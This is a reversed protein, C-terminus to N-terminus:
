RISRFRAQAERSSRFLRQHGHDRKDPQECLRFGLREDGSSRHGRQGGGEGDLFEADLCEAADPGDALHDPLGSIGISRGHLQALLRSGDGPIACGGLPIPFDRSQRVRWRRGALSARSGRAYRVCPVADGPLLRLFGPRHLYRLLRQHRPHCRYSRVRLREGRWRRRGARHGRQGGRSRALLEAHFRRASAPRCAVAVPLRPLGEARRDREFLLGPNYCSHRLASQPIAFSRTSGGALPNGRTDAVRCPTVPVYRLSTAPAGTTFSWTESVTTGATNRAVVQWYYTAGSHLVGPAWSTGTTNAVFVPSSSGFYVDYSTAGSSANWALMPAVVVGGAGKAPSALVPAALSAQIVAALDMTSGVLSGGGSVLVENTVQSPADAAVNTTVTIPPYSAGANLVDNRTCTNGWCNWGAGSMSALTLGVSVSETVTVTGSTPGASANNSVVVSFPAETQGSTLSAPHSSAVNLWAHSGTPILVRITEDEAVYVNGAADVVVAEPYALSASTATGGDGPFRSGGGAVTSITGTAAHVKRVVLNYYDAIFLNGAADVAVGLPENFTASTAPGGDGSYGVGGNGAVTTIIGTAATVKRVVLNDLIYINASADVAVSLPSIQASTAPGGDGSHVSGGGAVTTIVGTAVTVKRIRDSDVIYLNGSGDVAMRDPFVLQASTAPGGDGSHGATGNGAVTTIIGTAAAVKRIVNNMGDAIYLNGSGDGTVSEAGLEADTAPGGDGSYGCTGNGVVTTIIGTAAAVKRVTCDDGDIYINGLGDLGVRPWEALNASTALGGDGSEYEGNGAITTITDTAASVRRVRDGDGMYVNGSGDVAVSTADTQESGAVTTIVGTAAAVKRIANYDAVYLNGSGDVALGVSWGLQANTAPGGDGSYGQTGNGAVTAIIGTAAAVKRVVYHAGDGIFLNGSADVAVTDPHVRASAAPGGDGSYGDTGTGVVTTIIGTAAAVKRVRSTWNDAIYINGSGDVAIGFAHIQASTAPGGDGSYGETGNGAVTTISGTAATVKLVRDGDAIYVNAAEDLVVGDAWRLQATTAPGGDGSSALPDTSGAVRTLTGSADVKLVYGVYYNAAGMYVDGNAGVAVSNVSHLASSLAPAPTYPM